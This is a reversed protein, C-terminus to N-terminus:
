GWKQSQKGQSFKVLSLPEVGHCLALPLVLSQLPEWLLTKLTMPWLSHAGDGKAHLCCSAQGLKMCGLSGKALCTTVGVQSQAEVIDMDQSFGVVDNQM